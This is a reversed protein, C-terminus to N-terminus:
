FDDRKEQDNPDSFYIIQVMINKYSGNHGDNLLHEILKEQFFGRRGEGHLKLNLKYQNLWVRFKTVTSRTYQKKCM